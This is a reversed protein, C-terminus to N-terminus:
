RKKRMRISYAFSEEIGLYKYAKRPDLEKIDNEFTSGVHMKSQVSGRKLCVKAYKELGFKMDIDKSITQVIKMENKLDNENRGLLKLDDMYLLQSIKRETGHVQYGYDARNLENTLPILAICFLLPSLSDGPFIGRRIQFPQLQMVEQKTKLILKTNEKEMSLKCFRVIKSNVGVLEISKEVRSYPVSDFAKQYDIWAVSLNKNRRRCDEYIADSIMLQDKCGKSGPHCGKQEAPLLSQEELHTSIRKAEIGTLTKYMTTLCTIPRYNRVEKSDGSKSILYTIGTTLWDSAKEPEEIITKFNKTIHRHTAPFAKLLYNQIQESGPSKWNHAKSLYSTIETIQIPMWGMYGVKRKQERRIWEAKENHQAEEGWLSKWYTEAEAMSPPERAEINKMGLNRYFKKTDEKLMKNQSYLTERKEYRRIRQAKAQVKQKLTETLQAVERANTV